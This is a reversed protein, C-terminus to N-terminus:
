GKGGMVPPNQNVNKAAKEETRKKQQEDMRIRTRVEEGVRRAVLSLAGGTGETLIELNGASMENNIYNQFAKTAKIRRKLEQLGEKKETMLEWSGKGIITVNEAKQDLSIKHRIILNALLEEKQERSGSRFRDLVNGAQDDLQALSWAAMEDLNSNTRSVLKKSIFLRKAYPTTGAANRAMDPRVMSKKNEEERKKQKLKQPMGEEIKQKLQVERMDLKGLKKEAESISDIRALQRKAYQQVTKAANIRLQESHKDSGIGKFELYEQASRLLKVTSLEISRRREPDNLDEQELGRCIRKYEGLQEKMQKFQRSGSIRLRVLDAADFTNLVDRLAERRTNAYTNEVSSTKDNQAQIKDARTKGLEENDKHYQTIEFVPQGVPSSVAKLQKEGCTAIVPKGDSVYKQVEEDRLDLETGDPRSYFTHDLDFGNKELYERLMSRVTAPNAHYDSTIKAGDKVHIQAEMVGSRVTVNKGSAIYNKGEDSSIDFKTGDEKFYSTAIKQFGMDKVTKEFYSVMNEASHRYRPSDPGPVSVETQMGESTVMVPKGDAVYNIWAEGETQIPKGEMDTYVANAPDIGLARVANMFRVAATEKAIEFSYEDGDKRIIICEDGTTLKLQSGHILHLIDDSFVDAKKGDIPKGDDMWVASVVNDPKINHSALHEIIEDRLLMPKEIKIDPRPSFFISSAMEGIYSKQDFLAALQAQMDEDRSVDARFGNVNLYKYYPNAILKIRNQTIQAADYLDKLHECVKKDEESFRIFQDGEDTDNELISGIAGSIQSLYNLTAYSEVLDADTLALLHEPTTKEFQKAMEAYIKGRELGAEKREQQTLREAAELTMGEARHRLLQQPKSEAEYMVRDFRDLFEQDDMQTFYYRIAMRMRPIPNPFGTKQDALMTSETILHEKLRETLKEHEGRTEESLLLYGRFSAPLDDESTEVELSRLMADHFQGFDPIGHSENVRKNYEDKMVGLISNMSKLGFEIKDTRVDNPM